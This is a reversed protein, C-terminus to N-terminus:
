EEAAEDRPNQAEIAAIIRDATEDDLRDIAERTVPVTQGSADTFGPGSWGLVNLELLTISADAVAAGRDANAATGALRRKDGFAMKRKIRVVDGDGLVVDIAAQPDILRSM